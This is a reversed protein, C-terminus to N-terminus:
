LPLYFDRGGPPPLSAHPSLLATNVGVRLAAEKVPMVIQGAPTIASIASLHDRTLSVRLVPTEGRPATSWPEGTLLPRGAGIADKLAQLALSGGQHRAVADFVMAGLERV